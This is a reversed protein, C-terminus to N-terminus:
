LMIKCTFKERFIELGEESTTEFTKRFEKMKPKKGFEQFTKKRQIISVKDDHQRQASDGSKVGPSVMAENQLDSGTSRRKTKDGPAM